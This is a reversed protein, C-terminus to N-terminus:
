ATESNKALEEDQVMKFNEFNNAENLARSAVEPLDTLIKTLNEVNFELETGDRGFLNEFKIVVGNILTDRVIQQDINKPLRKNKAASAALIGKFPKAAKDYAKLGIKSNSRRILWRSDDDFTIWVGNEELTPDTEYAEYIGAM